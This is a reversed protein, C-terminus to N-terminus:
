QNGSPAPKEYEFHWTGEKDQWKKIIPQKPDTSEYRVSSIHDPNKGTINRWWEQWELKHVLYFHRMGSSTIFHHQGPILDAGTEKEVIWITGAGLCVLLFVFIFLSRGFM